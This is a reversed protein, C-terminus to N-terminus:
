MNIITAVDEEGPEEDEKILKWFLPPGVVGCTLPKFPGHCKQIISDYCVMLANISLIRSDSISLM